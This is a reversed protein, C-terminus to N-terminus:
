WQLHWAVGIGQQTNLFSDSVCRPSPCHQEVMRRSTEASGLGVNAPAVQDRHKWCWDPWGAEPQRARGQAHRRCGLTM